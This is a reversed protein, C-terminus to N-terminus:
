NVIEIGIYPTIGPALVQTAAFGGLQDAPLRLNLHEQYRRNFLNEIGGRLSVKKNVNYYARLNFVAFGPTSEELDGLSLVDTSGLRLLAVRDQGSVMRAAFEIGWTDGDCRDHM